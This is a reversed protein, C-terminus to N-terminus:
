SFLEISLPLHSRVSLSSSHLSLLDMGLYSTVFPVSWSKDPVDAAFALALRRQINNARPLLFNYQHVQGIAYRLRSIFNSPTISKVEILYETNKYIACLDVTHPDSYVSAGKSLCREAILNVMSDHLTRGKTSKSYDYVSVIRDQGGAPIPMTIDVFPQLNVTRGGATLNRAEEIDEEPLIEVKEVEDSPILQIALDLNGYFSFWNSKYNERPPIWFSEPQSLYTCIERIKSQHIVSYESLYLVSANKSMDFLPTNNLIKIWDAMNRRARTLPPLQATGNRSQIIASVCLPIDSNKLCRVIYRQMEDITLYNSKIANLLEYLTLLIVVAPRVLIGNAMQLETVTEYRSADAGLSESLSPSMQSKHGNPYQYKLIQLTIVEEYTITGDLFSIAVPTLYIEPMARTSYILGLESLIQQYDRWADGRQSDARINATLLGKDSLYRNIVDADAPKGACLSCAELLGRLVAETIVGAHQTIPWTLGEYPIAPYM